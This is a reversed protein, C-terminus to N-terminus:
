FSLLTNRHSLVHDGMYFIGRLAGAMGDIAAMLQGFGVGGDVAAELQLAHNTSQQMTGQVILENGQLKVFQIRNAATMLNQWLSSQVCLGVCFSSPGLPRVM